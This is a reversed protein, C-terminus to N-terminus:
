VVSDQLTGLRVRNTSTADGNSINLSTIASAGLPNAVDQGSAWPYVEGAANDIALAVVATAMFRISARKSSGVLLLESDAPDFDMDVVTVKCIVVATAAAPLVDGAGGDVTIDNTAVTATMGYRVGGDWYVDVTDSTVIGHSAQATVVGNSDTTRTSLTGTKAAALTTDLAVPTEGSRSVTGSITVGGIVGGITVSVDPM